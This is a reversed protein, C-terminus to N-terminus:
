WRLNRKVILFFVPAGVISTIIGVPLESPSIVVKSLFDSVLMTVAGFLATPLTLRSHKPGVTIRIIHPSMLGVFGIVGFFSVVVATSVSATVLLFIRDAKIRIGNSIATADDMLLIDMKDSNNLCLFVVILFLVSLVATHFYSSASFSGMTWYLVTDLQHKSIHILLTTVASLFFNVAIGCLLLQQISKRNLTFLLLSTLVSGTIAFLSTNEVIGLGVIMYSLAVACSAGSSVGLIYSDAMPNKFVCQFIMGSLALLSGALLCCLARPIRIQKVIYASYEDMNKFDIKVSGYFVSLTFFCVILFLLFVNLLVIRKM